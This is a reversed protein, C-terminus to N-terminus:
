FGDKYEKKLKIVIPKDAEAFDFKDLDSLLAWAIKEHDRVILKCTDWIVFYAILRIKFDPYSYISEIFFDKISIDINLEEKLERKLCEEPTEGEEIKGGPFEWKGSLKDSHKRKAILIRNNKILLAATVSIM